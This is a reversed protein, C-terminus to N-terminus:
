VTKGLLQLNLEESISMAAQKIKATLLNMLQSRGSNKREEIRSIAIPTALQMWDFFASTIGDSPSTDLEDYGAYSAVPTKGYMLPVKIKDGGDRTELGGASKIASLLVNSAFVNETLTDRYNDLTSTLLADFTTTRSQAGM